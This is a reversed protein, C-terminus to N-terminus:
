RGSNESVRTRQTIPAMWGDWGRNGVEGGARMKFFNIKVSTITSKCHQALRQKGAFHSLQVCIAMRKKINKEM